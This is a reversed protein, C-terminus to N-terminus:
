AIRLKSFPSSHECMLVGYFDRSLAKASISIKNVLSQGRGELGLVMCVTQFSLSEAKQM